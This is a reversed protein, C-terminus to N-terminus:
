IEPWIPNSYPRLIITEMYVSLELLILIPVYQQCKLAKMEDNKYTAMFDLILVFNPGIRVCVASNSGKPM